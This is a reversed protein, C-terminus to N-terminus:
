IAYKDFWGDLHIIEDYKQKTEEDPMEWREYMSIIAYEPVFKAPDRERNNKLAMELPKTLIVLVRKDFGPIEAIQSRWKNYINTCDAIVTVNDNEDRFKNIRKYYLDWVEPEHDLNDYKGTLELRIDDSSVIFVNEDTHNLKYHKAYTTKGSGAIASLCIIKKM